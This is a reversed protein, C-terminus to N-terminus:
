EKVPQKLNTMGDIMRSVEELSLVNPLKRPTKPFSLDEFYMDHRKLLKKVFFRLASMRMEVAGPNLRM